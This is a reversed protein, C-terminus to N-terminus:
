SFYMVPANQYLERYSLKLRDLDQGLARLKKKARSLMKRAIRLEMDKQQVLPTLDVFRCVYRVAKGARDLKAWVDVRLHVISTAKLAPLVSTDALAPEKLALHHPGTSDVNVFRCMVQQVRRAERAQTFAQDIAPVDEPHL